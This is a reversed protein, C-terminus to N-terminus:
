VRTVSRLHARVVTRSTYEGGFTPDGTSYFSGGCTVITLQDYNTPYMAQLAADLDLLDNAVVEYVVEAGRDDRLRILDGGALSGLSYFVAAGNWTVHGAFVANGGTGPRASFDYWAVVGGAYPGTPVIPIRNEDLGYVAVPNAVGIREIFMSQVDSLVPPIPTPEPPPPPPPPPPVPTPAPSPSPQATPSAVVLPAEEASGSPLAAYALVGVVLITTAGAAIAIRKRNGRLLLYAQARDRLSSARRSLQKWVRDLHSRLQQRSEPSTLYARVRDRLLLIRGWSIQNLISNLRTRM